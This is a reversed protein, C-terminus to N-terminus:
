RIGLTYTPIGQRGAARTLRFSRRPVPSKVWGDAKRGRVYEREARRYIDFRIDEGRGDIVWYEPIGANRYAPMLWELDKDESAPSVIEVM